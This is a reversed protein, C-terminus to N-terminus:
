FFSFFTPGESLVKQIRANAGCSLSVSCPLGFLLLLVIVTFGRFTSSWNKSISVFEFYIKSVISESFLVEEHDVTMGVLLSLSTTNQKFHYTFCWRTCEVQASAFRYAVQTNIRDQPYSLYVLSRDFDRIDRYVFCSTVAVRPQCSLIKIVTKLLMHKPHTFSVDRKCAWFKRKISFVCLM